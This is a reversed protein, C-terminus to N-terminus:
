NPRVMPIVAYSDDSEVVVHYKDIGITVMKSKVVFLANLLLDYRIDFKKRADTKGSTAVTLTEQSTNANDDESSIVIKNSKVDISIRYKGREATISVRKICKVLDAVEANFLVQNKKNVKSLLGVFPPDEVNTRKCAFVDNGTKFQIYAKNYGITMSEQGSEKLFKLVSLSSFPVVFKDSNGIEVDIRQYSFNDFTWCCDPEFFVSRLRQEYHIDDVIHKAREVAKVFPSIDAEFTVDMTLGEPEKDVHEDIQTWEGLFQGGQIFLDYKENVHLTIPREDMNELLEKLNGASVSIRYPESDEVVTVRETQAVAFLFKDARYMKLIKGSLEIELFNKDDSTGISLAKNMLHVLVFHDVTIKM